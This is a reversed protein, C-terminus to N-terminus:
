SAVAEFLGTALAIWKKKASKRLTSWDNLKKGSQLTERLYKAASDITKDDAIIAFDERIFKPSTENAAACTWFGGHPGNGDQGVRIWKPVDISYRPETTMAEADQIPTNM